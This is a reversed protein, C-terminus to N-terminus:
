KLAALWGKVRKANVGLDSSGFRSRAFVELFRDGKPTEYIGLTAYDPFGFVKSRTIYTIQREEVSGALRQTRPTAAAIDALAQLDEQGDTDLVKRWVYGAERLETATDVPKAFRNFRAPDSPAFRVYAMPVAVVILLVWFIMRRM